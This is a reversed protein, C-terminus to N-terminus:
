NRRLCKRIANNVIWRATKYDLRRRRADAGIINGKFPTLTIDNTKRRFKLLFKNAEEILNNLGIKKIIKRDVKLYTMVRSSVKIKDKSYDFQDAAFFSIDKENSSDIAKLGLQGTVDNFVIDYNDHCNRTKFEIFEIYNCIKRDNIFFDTIKNKSNAGNFTVVCIPVSTDDFPNPIVSTISDIYNHIELFFNSTIFSEPVIALGPFGSNIMNILAIKYLDNQNSDEYYEFVNKDFGDMENSKRKASIKALYPPNTVFFIQKANILSPEIIQKLSDNYFVKENDILQSDIDFGFYDNKLNMIKKIDFILNGKGFFPDLLICDKGL